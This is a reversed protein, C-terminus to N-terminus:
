MSYLSIGDVIIYIYITLTLEWLIRDFTVIRARENDLYNDTFNTKQTAYKMQKILHYGSM